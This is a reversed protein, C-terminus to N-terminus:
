AKPTLEGFLWILIKNNVDGPLDSFDDKQFAVKNGDNGIAEGQIFQKELISLTEEMSKKAGDKGPSFVLNSLKYLEGYTVANFELFCDKWEQGLDSLDYRRVIRFKGM